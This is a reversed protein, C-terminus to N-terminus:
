ELTALYLRFNTQDALAEPLSQKIATWLKKEGIDSNDISGIALEKLLLVIGECILVPKKEFAYHNGVDKFTIPIGTFSGDTMYNLENVIPGIKM